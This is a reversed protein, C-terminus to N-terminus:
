FQFYIFTQSSGSFTNIALILAYYVGWRVVAYKFVKNEPLQLVHVKERQLWEAVIMIGAFFLAKKGYLM